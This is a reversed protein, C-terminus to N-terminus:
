IGLGILVFSATFILSFILIALSILADASYGFKFDDIISHIWIALGTLVIISIFSLLISLGIM